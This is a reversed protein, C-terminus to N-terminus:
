LGNGSRYWDDYFQDYDHSLNHYIEMHYISGHSDLGVGFSDILNWNACLKGEITKAKRKIRQHCKIRLKTGYDTDANRDSYFITKIKPTNFTEWDM